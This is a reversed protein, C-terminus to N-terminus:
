SVVSTVLIRRSIKELREGNMRVDISDNLVKIRHGDLHDVVNITTDVYWRYKPLTFYSVVYRLTYSGPKSVDFDGLDGTTSM